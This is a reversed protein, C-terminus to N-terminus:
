VWLQMTAWGSGPRDLVYTADGGGELQGPGCTGRRWPESMEFVEGGRWPAPEDIAWKRNANWTTMKRLVLFGREERRSAGRGVNWRGSKVPLPLLVCRRPRMLLLLWVTLIPGGDCLVGRALVNSRVAACGGGRDIKRGATIGDM